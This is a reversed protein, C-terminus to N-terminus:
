NLLDRTFDFAKRTISESTVFVMSDESDVRNETYRSWIFSVTVSGTSTSNYDYSLQSIDTIYCDYFEWEYVTSYSPSSSDVSVTPKLAEVKLKFQKQTDKIFNGDSDVCLFSKLTELVKYSSDVRVSFSGQRDISSSPAIKKLSVNQYPISVTNISRKAISPVGTIRYSISAKSLTNIPTFTVIFLNLSSDAGTGILTNLLTNAYIKGM